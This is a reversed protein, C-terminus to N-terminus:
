VQCQDGCQTPSCRGIGFSATQCGQRTLQAPLGWTSGQEAGVPPNYITGISHRQEEYLAISSAPTRPPKVPLVSFVTILWRFCGEIIPFHFAPNNYFEYNLLRIVTTRFATTRSTTAPHFAFKVPPRDLRLWHSKDLGKLLKSMTKKTVKNKAPTSIGKGFLHRMTERQLLDKAHGPKARIQRSWAQIVSHRPYIICKSAGAPFFDPVPTLLHFWKNNEPYINPNQTSEWSTTQGCWAFIFSPNQGWDLPVPPLKSSSEWLGEPGERGSGVPPHHPLDKTKPSNSIGSSLSSIASSSQQYFAHELWMRLHRRQDQLFAQPKFRSGKPVNETSPSTHM